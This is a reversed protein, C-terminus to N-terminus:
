PAPSSSSSSETRRRRPGISGTSLGSAPVPEGRLFANAAEVEHAEIPSAGLHLASWITRALPYFLVPVVVAVILCTVLPVTASAEEDVAKWAVFGMTGVFLLVIVVGFNILFAGVFFGPEREFLFGCTPCRDKMHFWSDYLKGGGCRPCRKTIGRRLLTPWSAEAFSSETDGDQNM